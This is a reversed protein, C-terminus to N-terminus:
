LIIKCGPKKFISNIKIQNNYMEGYKKGRVLFIKLRGMGSVESKEKSKTASVVIFKNEFVFTCGRM